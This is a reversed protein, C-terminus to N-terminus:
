EANKGAPGLPTSKPSPDLAVSPLLIYFTTGDQAEPDHLLEGGLADVIRRSMALGMGDGPAVQPHFRQFPQFLKAQASRPIGLGNDHVCYSAMSQGVTARAMRPPPTQTDIEVRAERSPDRYKVANSLLNSFVRELAAADGLASPLDCVQIAVHHHILTDHMSDIVRRVLADMDVPRREYEVRGARSLLLLADIIGSLRAVSSQIFRLSTSMSGDILAAGDDKVKRPVEEHSLLGRLDQLTLMLEKSFGQLNVLPSRLDHSVSYVFMENDRNRQMLSQNVEALEQTREAVRQELDSNLRHLETNVQRLQLQVERLEASQRESRRTTLWLDAFVKVKAQLIDPDLPKMLFDVGGVDYSKIQNLHDQYYATVFIIPTHASRPQQRARSATEFGDIGPMMVDLLILAFDEEQLRQLAEKGSHAVRIDLHLRGLVAEAALLNAPTDDVILVRPKELNTDM